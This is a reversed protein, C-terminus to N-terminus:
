EYTLYNENDTVLGGENTIYNANITKNEFAEFDANSKIFTATVDVLNTEENDEKNISGDIVLGTSDIFLQSHYSALVFQRYKKFSMTEFHYEFGENTQGDVLYADNDNKQNENEEATYPIIKAYPLRLLHKIGTSYFIDQNETDAYQIEVQGEFFGIQLLESVKYFTQTDNEAQILILLDANNYQEFNFPIEYINFEEIDYNLSMIKYGVTLGTSEIEICWSSQVEDYLFGLIKCDIGDISITKGIINKDTITFDPLIGFSNITELINLDTENDFINIFAFKVGLNDSEELEVIIGDLTINQNINEIKLVADIEEQEVSDKYIKAKINSLNSKIQITPADSPNFYWVARQSLFQKGEFSLTNEETKYKGLSRDAFPISNAKSIYFIDKM